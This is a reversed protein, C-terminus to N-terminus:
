GPDQAAPIKEGRTAPPEALAADAEALKRELSPLRNCRPRCRPSDKQLADIEAPSIKLGRPTPKLNKAGPIRYRAATGAIVHKRHAPTLPQGCTPCEPATSTELTELRKKLPETQPALADNEGRLRGAM